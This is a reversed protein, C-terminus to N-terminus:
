RKAPRKGAAKAVVNYAPRPTGNPNLLGSDWGTDPGDVTGFWDYHYIRAVRHFRNPLSFLFAEDRAAAATTENKFQWHGRREIGAIETLWIPGSTLSQMTRLQSTTHSRVDYYNHLAWASPHYRLAHAYVRLWPGLTWRGTYKTTSTPLYVEGAVDTCRPCLQHLANFYSAALAPNNALKPRYIWDPENWAAYTRVKPFDKMFKAIASKYQGVSGPLGAGATSGGFSVMPAVGDALSANIFARAANLDAKSRETATNWPTIYRSVTINIKQFLPNSFVQDTQDSVGVTLKAAATAPLAVAVLACACTLPLLFKSLRHVVQTM